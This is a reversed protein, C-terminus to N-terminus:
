KKRNIEVVLSIQLFNKGTEDNIRYDFQNVWGLQVSFQKTLQYSSGASIRNREFYPANNTFFLENWAYINFGTERKQKHNVPVTIGMRYRFRNRYGNTTWRQEARYRHELKAASFYQNLTLQLWTRTEDNIMPTKFNEGAGYTDFNGIGAALLAQKHLKYQIGAKYEYYHFNNYFKLSRIQGEGFLSLKENLPLKITVINWSGLANQTNAPKVICLLSLVFLINKKMSLLSSTLFYNGM